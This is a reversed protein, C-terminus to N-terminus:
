IKDIPPLQNANINTSSIANLILSAYYYPDQLNKDPAQGQLVGYNGVGPGLGTSSDQIYPGTGAIADNLHILFQEQDIAPAAITQNQFIIADSIFSIFDNYDQIYEDWPEDDRTDNEINENYYYVHDSENIFSISVQKKPENTDERLDISLWRLWREDSITNVGLVYKNIKEESKYVEAKLIKRVIEFGKNVSDTYNNMSSTGDYFAILYTEDDIIFNWNIKPKACIRYLPGVEGDVSITTQFEADDDMKSTNDFSSLYGFGEVGEGNSYIVQFCVPDGTEIANKLRETGIDNKIYNGSLEIKKDINIQRRTVAIDSDFNRSQTEESNSTDSVSNISLCKMMKPVLVEIPESLTGKPIVTNPPNKIEIEYSYQSAVKSIELTDFGNFTIETNASIDFPLLGELEIKTDSTEIDKRPSIKIKEKYYYSPGTSNWISSSPPSPYIIPSTSDLSGFDPSIIYNLFYYVLENKPIKEWPTDEKISNQFTIRYGPNIYDVELNDMGNFFIEISQIPGDGEITHTKLRENNLENHQNFTYKLEITYKQNGRGTGGSGIVSNPEQILSFKYNGRTLYPNEPPSLKVTTGKGPLFDRSQLSLKNANFLYPM